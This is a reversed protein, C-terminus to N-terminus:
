NHNKMKSTKQVTFSLSIHFLVILGIEQRRKSVFVGVNAQGQDGFIAFNQFHAAFEFSKREKKM